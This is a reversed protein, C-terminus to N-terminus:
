SRLSKILKYFGRLIIMCKLLKCYAQSLIFIFLFIILIFFFYTCYSDLICM